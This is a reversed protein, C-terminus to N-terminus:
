SFAPANGEESDAVSFLIRSRIHGGLIDNTCELDNGEIWIVVTYKDVSGPSFDKSATQMIITDDLWAITGKEAKSRDAKTGKAYVLEEGNKIIMVRIAEDMGNATGTLEMTGNYDLTNKGGNKLYFTYALYNEGNHSGDTKDLDKPLWDKTINTAEEVKPASLQIASNEFSEDECLMIGNERLGRDTSIVLDGYLTVFISILWLILLILLVTLITIIVKKIFNNDRSTEEAERGASARGVIRRTQQSLADLEHPTFEEVPKEKKKRAM